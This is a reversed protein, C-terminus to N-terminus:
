NTGAGIDSRYRMGEFNICKVAEYAKDRASPFDKAVANVALVRGGSTYFNGNEFKTGCHFIEVGEINDAQGFDIKYGSLYKGPYGGSALIVCCSSLNKFKVNLDQLKEDRVALMIDFLDSDLLPIVAEAEPDGFRCNYEIVKPGERTLMLFYICGKFKRGEHNLANVTPLFIKKMCEDAIEDSYYFNPAAVGMGGTNPGKNGDYARKHDMSSVLPIITKGDTFALVTVEPGRLCEEILIKEGSTGFAKDRMCSFIADRAQKFTEAVTVGKGKALGDAKIVIPYDSLAAYSLAEDLNTFTKYNATPINYRTMLNKAFIKSSEIIAANQSPGFCKVGISELKDVAGLALPDDPAVIAFDIANSRAFNIIGDIDEASINVCDAIQSIGGNGPLAYLKSVKPNKAVYKAIVHERGGGGIILVNM